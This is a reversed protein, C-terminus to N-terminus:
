KKKKKPSSTKSKSSKPKSSAKTGKKSSPKKQATSKKPSPKSTTTATQKKASKPSTQKKASGSVSKPSTIESPKAQVREDPKIEPRAQTKGDPKKRNRLEELRKFVDAKKDPGAPRKVGEAAGKSLSTKGKDSAASQEQGSKTTPGAQKTTTQDKQQSDKSQSGTTAQADQHKKPEKIDLKELDPKKETEGSKGSLKEDFRSLLEKRAAKKADLKKKRALESMEKMAKMQKEQEASRDTGRPGMMSPGGLGGPAGGLGRPPMKSKSFPEHQPKYYQTYYYYGGVGAMGIVIIGIVFYLWPFGGPEDSEDDTSSPDPYPTYTEVPETDPCAGCPGGCDIGLEEGNLFGDDCTPTKCTSIGFSEYCWNSECDSDSFCTSNETCLTDCPGGCDVDAENQNKVGDSCSPASCFGDDCNNSMCDSDENCVKGTGCPWCNEGGCDVDTEGNDTDLLLNECLGYSPTPTRGPEDGSRCSSTDFQCNGTCGLSGGSFGLSECTIGSFDMNDCEELNNRVGDGCYEGNLVCLSTDYNSCDDACLLTGGETFGRDECTQDNMDDGDCIEGIERVGNGCEPGAADPDETCQAFDLECRSNCRLTGGIYPSYDECNLDGVDGDCEEGPDLEGNGCKDCDSDDWEICDVCEIYGGGAPCRIKDDPQCKEGPEPIGNDCSPPPKPFAVCSSTDFTCNNPFCKLTGEKFGLAECTANGIVNTGECREGREPDIYGDGCEGCGTCSSKDLECEGTCGLNGGSCGFDECTMGLLETGDCEEFPWLVMGDGCSSDDTPCGTCGSLDFQCETCGLSGGTCNFDSCSMDNLNTGECEEYQKDIFGDGCLYCETCGSPDISCDDECDLNGSRCNYFDSCQKDNYDTGDCEEGPNLMGNPCLTQNELCLNTDITCTSDCQLAGSVLGFSECSFSGFDTGDCEEQSDKTEDHNCDSIYCESTDFGRCDAACKLTGGDFGQSICNHGDLLNGDCIEGMGSDIAEGNCYDPVCDSLSLQCDDGCLVNGSVYDDHKPSCTEQVTGPDDCGEGPEKKGNGCWGCESYDFQCDIPDCTVSGVSDEFLPFLNVFFPDNCPKSFDIECHEGPDLKGNACGPPVKQTCLAGDSTKVASELGVDDVAIVNWYYIMGLTCQMDTKTISTRTTNTWDLVDTGGASTGISYLYYAIGAGSDEATWEASMVELTDYLEDDADLDTVVPPQTDVMFSFDAEFWEGSGAQCKFYYTNEGDLVNVEPTNWLRPDGNKMSMSGDISDESEGFLCRGSPKNTQLEMVVPNEQILGVPYLLQMDATAQTDTEFTFEMPKDTLRLNDQDDDYAGNECQFFFKFVTQDDLQEPDGVTLRNETKFDREDYGDFGVMSTYQKKTESYRCITKDDTTIVIDATLPRAIIKPPVLVNGKHELEIKLIKPQTVDFEIEFEAEEESMTDSKCAVYMTAVGQGASPFVAEKPDTYHLYFDGIREKYEFPEYYDSSSFHTWSWKCDLDDYTNVALEFARESTVGNSPSVLTIQDGTYDVVKVFITKEVNNGSRDTAQLKIENLGKGLSLEESFDNNAEIDEIVEQGGSTRIITIKLTNNGSSIADPDVVTGKLTMTEGYQEYPESANIHFGVEGQINIEPEKTDLNMQHCVTQFTKGGMAKQDVIQINETGKFCLYVNETGNLDFALPQTENNLIDPTCQQTSFCYRVRNCGFGGQPEDRCELYIKNSLTTYIGSFDFPAGSGDVASVIPAQDDFVFSIRETHYNNDIKCMVNIENLGPKPDYPPSSHRYILGGQTMQQSTMSDMSAWVDWNTLGVERYRCEIDRRTDVSLVVPGYDVTYDPQGNFIETDSDVNLTVTKSGENGVLDTCEISYQYNGDDVNEYDVLWYDNIEFEKIRPQHGAFNDKCRALEDTQVQILLQKSDPDPNSWSSVTIAPPSRDVEVQQRKLEELNQAKDESYYFISYVGEGLSLTKKKDTEEGDFFTVEDEQDERPYCHGNEDTWCFYTRDIGMGSRGQNDIDSSVFHLELDRAKLPSVIRTVPPVYDFYGSDTKIPSDGEGNYDADKMCCPYNDGCIFSDVQWRCVGFGLADHSPTLANTNGIREDGAYAVDVSLEQDGECALETMFDECTIRNSEVCEDFVGGLYCNSGFNRCMELDCDNFIKNHEADNCQECDMFDTIVETCVGINMEEDVVKWECDRPLCKNNVDRVKRNDQGECAFQSRYDFCSDVNSCSHFMDITTDSYDWYCYPDLKCLTLQGNNDHMESLEYNSFMGLPFNCEWCHGLEICQTADGIPGVCQTGEPCCWEGDVAIQELMNEGNCRWHCNREGDLGGMDNGCFRETISGLCVLDGSEQCVVETSEVETGDPYIAVVKYCYNTNPEVGNDIYSKDSIPTQTLQDPFIDTPGCNMENKNCRLVNFEVDLCNLRWKIIFRAVGKVVNIELQDPPNLLTHCNATGCTDPVGDGDGDSVQGSCCKYYGDDLYGLGECDEHNTESCLRGACKADECDVEGNNNDDIDNDCVELAHDCLPDLYWDAREAWAHDETCPIFWECGSTTDIQGSRLYEGPNCTHLSCEQDYCGFTCCYQGADCPEGECLCDQNLQGYSGCPTQDCLSESSINPNFVYSGNALQEKCCSDYQDVDGDGDNDKGDDCARSSDRESDDYESECGPDEPYDFLGDDDDDDGNGCAAKGPDGTTCDTINCDECCSLRGDEDSTYGSMFLNNNKEICRVKRM